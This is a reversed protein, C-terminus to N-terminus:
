GSSARVQWESLRLRRLTTGGEGELPTEYVLFRLELYAWCTGLQTVEERGQLSRRETILFWGQWGESDEGGGAGGHVAPSSESSSSLSRLPPAGDEDELRPRNEPDIAHGSSIALTTLTALQEEEFGVRLPEVDLDVRVWPVSVAATQLLVAVTLRAGLPAILPPSPPAAAVDVLWAETHGRSLLRASLHTFSLCFAQETHQEAHQETHQESGQSADTAQLLHQGSPARPPSEPAAPPPPTATSAEESSLLIELLQVCAGHLTLEEREGDEAATTALPPPEVWVVTLATILIALHVPRQRWLTLAADRLAGVLNKLIGKTVQELEVAAAWQSPPLQFYAIISALLRPNLTLTLPQLHASLQAAADSHLPETELRALLADTDTGHRLISTLQAHPTSLDTLGLASIRLELGLGNQYTRQKASVHIGDIGLRVLGTSGQTFITASLHDVDVSAQLQVHDAFDAMAKTGLDAVQAVEGEVLEDLLQQLEVESMTGIAWRARVAVRQPSDYAAAPSDFRGDRQSHSDTSQAPPSPSLFAAADSGAQGGSARAAAQVEATEPKPSAKRFLGGFFGLDPGGRGSGAAPDGGHSAVAAPSATGGGAEVSSGAGGGEQIGEWWRGSQRGSIARALARYRLILELSMDKELTALAVARAETAAKGGAARGDLWHAAYARLYLQRQRRRKDLAFWTVATSDDRALCTVARCAYRWWLASNAGNRQPPHPPRDCGVFRHRREKRAVAEVIELLSGLQAQRMSLALEAFHASVKLRPWPRKSPDIKEAPDFEVALAADLPALLFSEHAAPATLMPLMAMEWADDASPVVTPSASSDAIADATTAISEGSSGEVERGEGADNDHSRTGLYISLGKIAVSKRVLSALMHTAAKAMATPDGSRAVQPPVELQSVLLSKVIAGAAVGAAGDQVRVHVNTITIELNQLLTRVLKEFFNNLPNNTKGEQVSEWAATAEQKAAEAAAAHQEDSRRDGAKPALLLFVHDINILIPDKGATLTSWPVKVRVFGVKGGAVALPLDLAEFAARRLQLSNLAVDGSSVDLKLHEKDIGHVFAGLVRHLVDAVIGRLWDGM